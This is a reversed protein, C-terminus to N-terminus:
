YLEHYEDERVRVRQHEGQQLRDIDATTQKLISQQEETLLNELTWQSRTLEDIDM